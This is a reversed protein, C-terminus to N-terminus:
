LNFSVGTNGANEPTRNEMEDVKDSTNEGPKEEPKSGNNEERPVYGLEEEIKEEIAKSATSKMISGTKHRYQQLAYHAPDDVRILQGDGM